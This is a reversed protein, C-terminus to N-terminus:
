KPAYKNVTVEIRPNEKDLGCRKVIVYNIRADNDYIAGEIGDCIVQTYNLIDRRRRDPEWVHFTIKVPEKYMKAARTQEKALKQIGAKADRYRATLAPRGKGWVTVKNNKSICLDWPITIKM